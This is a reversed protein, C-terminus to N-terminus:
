WAETPGPRRTKRNSRQMIGLRLIVARGYPSRARPGFFPVGPPPFSTLRSFTILNFPLLASRFYQILQRQHLKRKM